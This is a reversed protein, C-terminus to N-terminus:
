SAKQLLVWDQKAQHPGLYWCMTKGTKITDSETLASFCIFVRWRAEGTKTFWRKPDETIKDIYKRGPQVFVQELLMGIVVGDNLDNFSPEQDKGLRASPGFDFKIMDGPALDTVVYESLKKPSM